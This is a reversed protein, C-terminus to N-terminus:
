LRGRREAEARSQKEDTWITPLKVELSGKFLWKFTDQWGLEACYGSKNGARVESRRLTAWFFYLFVADSAVRLIGKLRSPWSPLTCTRTVRCPSLLAAKLSGRAVPEFFTEICFSSGEASLLFSPFRARANEFWSSCPPDFRFSAPSRLVSCHIMLRVSDSLPM